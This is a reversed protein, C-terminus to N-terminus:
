HYRCVPWPASGRLRYLIRARKWQEKRSARAPDGRGGVAAWTSWAFQFLGRYRGGPSVATPTNRSECWAIRQLHSDMSGAAGVPTALALTCCTAAVLRRLM